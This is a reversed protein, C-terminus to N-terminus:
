SVAASDDVISCAMTSRPRECPPGIRRFHLRDRMSPPRNPSRRPVQVPFRGIWAHCSMPTELEPPYVDRPAESRRGPIRAPRHATVCQFGAQRVRRSRVARPSDPCSSPFRVKGETARGNDQHLWRRSQSGIMPITSTLSESTELFPPGCPFTQKANCLLEVFSSAYM